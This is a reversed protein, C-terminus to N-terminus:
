EVISYIGFSQFDTLFLFLRLRSTNCMDYRRYLLNELENSVITFLVAHEHSRSKEVLTKKLNFAHTSLIGLDLIGSRSQDVNLASVDKVALGVSAETLKAGPSLM